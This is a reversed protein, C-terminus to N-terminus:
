PRHVLFGTVQVQKINDFGLVRIYADPYAAICEQVERIVQSSDRCGFMPLKWMTWYRGDYYGSGAFHERSVTGVADFELCPVWGNRLLYDIQKMIAHDSLPPLYSLTEFKLNDYPPWVKMCNVRSGNSVTVSKLTKGSVMVNSRLGNFQKTSTAANLASPAAIAAAVTLAAM